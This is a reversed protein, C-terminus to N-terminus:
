LLFASQAVIVDVPDGVEEAEQHLSIEDNQPSQQWHGEETEDYARASLKV